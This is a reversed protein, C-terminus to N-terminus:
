RTLDVLDSQRLLLVSERDRHTTKKQEVRKTRTQRKPVNGLTLGDCHIKATLVISITIVPSWRDQTEQPFGRGHAELVVRGATM